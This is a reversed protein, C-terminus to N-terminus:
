MLIKIKYILYNYIMTQRLIDISHRPVVQFWQSINTRLGLYTYKVIYDQAQQANREMQIHLKSISVYM